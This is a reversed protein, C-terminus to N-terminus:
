GLGRAAADIATLTAAQQAIWAAEAATLTDTHPIASVKDRLRLLAAHAEAKLRGDGLLKEIDNRLSTDVYPDTRM